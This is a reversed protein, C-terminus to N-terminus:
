IMLQASSHAAHRAGNPLAMLSELCQHARTWTPGVLIKRTFKRKPSEGSPGLIRGLSTWLPNEEKSAELSRGLSASLSLELTLDEKPCQPCNRESQEPSDM